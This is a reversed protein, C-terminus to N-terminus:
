FVPATNVLYSFTAAGGLAVCAVVQAAVTALRRRKTPRSDNAPQVFILAGEHAPIEQEKMGLPVQAIICEQTAPIDAPEQLTQEPCPAESVNPVHPTSDDSDLSKSVIVEEPEDLQSFAEGFSRKAPAPVCSIPPRPESQSATLCQKPEQALLDQIPLGRTKSGTVVSTALKSQQFKYASTMDFDAQQSRASQLMTTEDVPPNNIFDDGSITWASYQNTDTDGLKISTTDPVMLAELVDPVGASDQPMSGERGKAITTAEPTHSPRPSISRPNNPLATAITTNDDHPVAQLTERLASVPATAQHQHITARNKERAAFFEFKGSKEGLKQARDASVTNDLLPLRRFLAADSPSPDRDRSPIRQTFSVSPPFGFRVNAPAITTECHTPEYLTTFLSVPMETHHRGDSPETMADQDEEEDEEDEDNEEEEDDDEEEEDPSSSGNGDDSDTDTNFYSIGDSDYFEEDISLKHDGGVESSTDDHDLLLDGVDDTQNTDDMAGSSSVSEQQSDESLVSEADEESWNDPYMYVDEDSPVPFSPVVIRGDPTHILRMPALSGARSNSPAPVSPSINFGPPRPVVPDVTRVEADSECNPESTLDIVDSAMNGNIIARSSLKIVPSPLHDGDATLDIPLPRSGNSVTSKAELIPLKPLKTASMFTIDGSISDDDDDVYDPVTFGRPSIHRSEGAMEEIFFDVSCPPYTKESRFIDIGFRINDGNTLKVLQNPVLRLEHNRGNNATHFTGHFSSADKIYVVGIPENDHFKAVLEAHKRSMVPNDFWANDDAPVFGKSHVKSSRGIPIVPHNRTLVLRRRPISYPGRLSLTVVVRDMATSGAEEASPQTAAAM